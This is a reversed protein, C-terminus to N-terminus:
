RISDAASLLGLIFAAMGALVAGIAGARWLNGAKSQPYHFYTYQAFYMCSYASAAAVVGTGFFKVAHQLDLLDLTLGPKGVANAAFGLAAIAAGGNGILVAKISAVGADLISQLGVKQMEITANYQALSRDYELRTREAQTLPREGYVEVEREMKAVWRLLADPDISAQGKTKVDEVAHRLETAFEKLDPSM